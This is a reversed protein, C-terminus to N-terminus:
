TSRCFRAPRGTNRAVALGMVTWGWPRVVMVTRNVTVSQALTVREAQGNGIVKV